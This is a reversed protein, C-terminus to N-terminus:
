HCDIRATWPLDATSGNEVVDLRPRQHPSIGAEDRSLGNPSRRAVQTVFELHETRGVIDGLTMRHPPSSDRASAQTSQAGGFHSPGKIPSNKARGPEKVPM